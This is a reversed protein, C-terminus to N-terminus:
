CMAALSDIIKLRWKASPPLPPATIQDRKRLADGRERGSECWRVGSGRSELRRKKPGFAIKRVQTRSSIQSRRRSVAEV